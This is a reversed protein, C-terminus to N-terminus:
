KGVGAKGRKLDMTIGERFNPPLFDCISNFIRSSRRAPRLYNRVALGAVELGAARAAGTLEGATYERFHGSRDERIMEYPNRGFLLLLRRSLSAANPTQLLIRGNPELAAALFGLVLHPATYLHELVEAAVIVHYRGIDPWKERCQVANLDWTFHEDRDRYRLDDYNNLTNVAAGPYAQRILRTLFSQGVDLIRLPDVTGLEQTVRHLGALLWEYRVRHMKFYIRADEGAEALRNGGIRVM